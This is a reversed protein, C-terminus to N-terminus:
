ATDGQPALEGELIEVRRPLREELNVYLTPVLPPTTTVTRTGIGAGALPAPRDSGVGSAAILEDGISSPKRRIPNTAIEVARKQHSREIM